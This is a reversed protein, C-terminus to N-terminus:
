TNPLGGEDSENLQEKLNRIRRHVIVALHAYLDNSIDNKLMIANTKVLDNGSTTHIECYDCYYNPDDMHLAKRIYELEEIQDEIQKKMLVEM